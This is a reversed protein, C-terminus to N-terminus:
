SRRIPVCLADLTLAIERRGIIEFGAIRGFNDTDMYVIGEPVNLSYGEGLRIGIINQEVINLKREAAVYFTSCDIGACGCRSDIRLEPLQTLLKQLHQRELESEVERYFDPLAEKFRPAGKSQTERDL